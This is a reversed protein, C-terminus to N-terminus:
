GIFKELISDINSEDVKTTVFKAYGDDPHHEIRAWNITELKHIVDDCFRKKIIRNGVYISYPPIDKAVVSGAGIVCGTGIKVGALILTRYGIWVDDGVFIDNMEPPFIIRKHAYVKSYFPFTTIREYDHEGGLLFVVEDAISCYNGIQLKADKNYHKINLAGYTNRGVTINKCHFFSNAYTENHKNKKRWMLNFISMKIKKIM